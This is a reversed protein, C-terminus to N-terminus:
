KQDKLYEGRFDQLMAKFDKLQNMTCTAINYFGLELPAAKVLQAPNGRAKEAAALFEELRKLLAETDSQKSM